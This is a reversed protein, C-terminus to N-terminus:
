IQKHKLKLLSDDSNVYVCIGTKGVINQWELWAYINWINPLLIIYPCMTSEDSM